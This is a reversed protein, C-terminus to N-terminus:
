SKLIALIADRYESVASHMWDMIETWDGDQEHGKSFKKGLFHTGRSSPGLPAGLAAELSARHPQLLEEALEVGEGL